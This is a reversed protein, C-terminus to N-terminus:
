LVTLAPEVTSHGQYTLASFLHTSLVPLTHAAPVSMWMGYVPVLGAMPLGARFCLKDHFVIEASKYEVPALM